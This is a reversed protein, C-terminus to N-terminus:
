HSSACPIVHAMDLKMVPTTPYFMGDDEGGSRGAVPPVPALMTISHPPRVAKNLM